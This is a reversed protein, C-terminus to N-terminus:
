QENLSWDYPLFTVRAGEPVLRAAREPSLYRRLYAPVSGAARVFDDGYWEFIKSLRLPAPPEDFENFRPDGIFGRAAADLEADLGQATYPRSALPPCSKSACNIAFHIRPEGFRARLIEHEIADLTTAGGAVRVPEKWVGKGPLVGLTPKIKTISTVPYARVVRELTLANYANIWFAVQRTRSWGTTDVTALRHVYDTLPGAHGKLGKYDVLGRAVYRALVRAYSSDFPTVDASVAVAGRPAAASAIGSAAAFGAVVFALVPLLPRM